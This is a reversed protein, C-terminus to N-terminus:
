QLHVSDVFGPCAILPLCDHCRCIMLGLHRKTQSANFILGAELDGLALALSGYRGLWHLRPQHNESTDGM